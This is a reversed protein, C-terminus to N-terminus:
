VLWVLHPLEECPADIGDDAVAEDKGVRDGPQACLVLLLRVGLNAKVGDKGRGGVVHNEAIGGHLLIEVSAITQEFDCSFNIGDIVGVEFVM